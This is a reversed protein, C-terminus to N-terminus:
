LDRFKLNLDVRKEDPLILYDLYLTNYKGCEKYEKGDKITSTRGYIKYKGTPYYPFTIPYNENVYNDCIGNHWATNESSTDIFTVRNVDSYTVTGNDYVKKFLSSMRKCQYEECQNKSDYRVFEWVDETDEIPSLCRMDVLRNLINLTVGISHGSHNQNLLMDYITLAAKCCEKYYDDCNHETAISVENKAWDRMDMM